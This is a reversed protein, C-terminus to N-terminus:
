YIENKRKRLILAMSRPMFTANPLLRKPGASLTEVVRLGHDEAMKVLDSERRFEFIHDIQAATLAGTLFATQAPKLLHHIVAFLKDPDELHEIVFNCIVTDASEAAMADLDLANRLEYRARGSFGAAQAVEGAIRMSSPSIDYGVLNADPLHKLAFIGWGGHGPAIEIIRRPKALKKLFREEFFLCIETHHAWLFNTLYVGWLYDDMDEKQSYLSENCEQFTKNEYHGAAEYRAQSVNVSTTFRVFSEVMPGIAEVGRAAVAWNLFTAAIEEFKQPNVQRAEKIGQCSRPHNARIYDELLDLYEAHPAKLMELVEM